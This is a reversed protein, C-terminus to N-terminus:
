SSVETRQARVMRERAINLAKFTGEYKRAAPKADWPARWIVGSRHSPISEIFFGLTGLHAALGLSYVLFHSPVPQTARFEERGPEPPDTSYVLHSQPGDIPSM